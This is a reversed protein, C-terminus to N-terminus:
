VYAVRHTPLFPTQSPFTSWRILPSRPLLFPTFLELSATLIAPFSPPSTPVFSPWSEMKTILLVKPYGGTDRRMTSVLIGLHRKTCSTHIIFMRLMSDPCTQVNHYDCCICSEYLEMRQDGPSENNVTSCSGVVIFKSMQYQIM